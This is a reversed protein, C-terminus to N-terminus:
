RDYFVPGFQACQQQSGLLRLKVFEAIPEVPLHNLCAIDTAHQRFGKGNSAVVVFRQRRNQCRVDLASKDRGHSLRRPRDDIGDSRDHSRGDSLGDGSGQLAHRLREIARQVLAEGDATETPPHVSPPRPAREGLHHQEMRQAITHLLHKEDMPLGTEEQMVDRGVRGDHLILM